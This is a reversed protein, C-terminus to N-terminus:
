VPPERKMDRIVMEGGLIAMPSTASMSAAQEVAVPPVGIALGDAEGEVGASEGSGVGVAAGAEGDVGVSAGVGV